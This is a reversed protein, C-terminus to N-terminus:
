KFILEKAAVAFAILMLIPAWYIVKIFFLDHTNGLTVEQGSEKDVLVRAPRSRLYTGLFWCLIGSVGLSIALPWKHEDWFTESGTLQNTALNAALSVVSLRPM